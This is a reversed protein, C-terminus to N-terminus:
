DLRYRVEPLQVGLVDAFKIAGDPRFGAKEYFRRARANGQLVWLAIPPQMEDVAVQMLARGLGTSWAGPVVYLAYLESWGALDDDRGPGFVCFGRIEGGVVAVRMTTSGTALRERARQAWEAFDVGDFTGPPCLPEYAGRWGALRVAAIAEADDPEALRILRAPSAPEGTGETM